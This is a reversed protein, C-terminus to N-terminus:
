GVARGSEIRAAPHDVSEFSGNGDPLFFMKFIARDPRIAFRKRVYGSKHPSPRRGQAFDFPGRGRRILDRIWLLKCGVSYDRFSAKEWGKETLRMRTDPGSNKSRGWAAM